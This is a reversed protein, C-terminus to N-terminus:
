QAPGAEARSGAGTTGAAPTPAAPSEAARSEAARSEAARSEAAVALQDIVARAAARGSGVCAPIGVGHYAAGAVALGGLRTLSSEIAGVRLQHHVRYQPFSGPWRTVTSSTPSGDLGVLVAVEEVVREILATDTLADARRDQFRGVSARVLFEGSRALHPWKQSLYTCATVLFYPDDGHGLGKPRRSRDPVLLGTGGVPRELASAPYSLTVVAVSAYDIGRLLGATEPDHAELLAGAVPTPVALIVADADITRRGAHVRWRWPDGSARELATVTTDTHISVGRDELVATLRDPLSAVGDRLTWFMPRPPSPAAAAAAAAPAPAPTPATPEGSPGAPGGTPSAGRALALRLSRMLSGRRHSAELLLPFVSAASMDSVDGAHIGGILPGALTQVVRRGLKRRVLPGVARDGLPGRLDPRPSVVDLLVRLSGGLGVVGSRALPWFRSPVGLVLGEPLARRRGRAWVSAGSAGIPMLEPGLGIERCLTEAEPRRALFGDPGLDVLRRPLGVPFGEPPPPDIREARLVGGPRPGADLLHVVPGGAGSPRTGGSAEYAAALGSIGGGVVVVVPRRADAAREGALGESVEDNDGTRAM